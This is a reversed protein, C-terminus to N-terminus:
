SVGMATLSDLFDHKFGCLPLFLFPGSATGPMAFETLVAFALLFCESYFKMSELGSKPQTKRKTLPAVKLGLSIPCCDKLLMQPRESGVPFSLSLVTM